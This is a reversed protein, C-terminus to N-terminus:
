ILSLLLITSEEQKLQKRISVKTHIFEAIETLVDLYSEKSVLDVKRQEIRLRCSIRSRIGAELSAHRKHFRGDSEIFGALWNDENLNGKKL